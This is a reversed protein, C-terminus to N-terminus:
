VDAGDRQGQLERLLETLEDPTKGLHQALLALQQDYVRRGDREDKLAEALHGILSYIAREVDAPTGLIGLTTNPAARTCRARTRGCPPM